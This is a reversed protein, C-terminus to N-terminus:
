PPGLTYAEGDAARWLPTLGLASDLAAPVYLFPREIATWWVLRGREGRAVREALRTLDGTPTGPSNYPHRRPSFSADLGSLAYVADPANSYLPGGPPAERLRAATASARWHPTAYGGVGEARYRLLDRGAHLALLAVAALSAASLLRAGARRAIPADQALRDLALAALLVLPLYTPALYRDNIRELAVASSALVTVALHLLVYAGLAVHSAGLSRAPLTRGPRLRLWLALAASVAAGALAVRWPGPVAHPLIWGSWVEAAFYTNAWWPYASPARDGLATGHSALNALLWLAVPALSVALYGAAARRRARPEGAGRLLLALAGAGAWAVGPYRTLAALAASGASLWPVGGGRQRDLARCSALVLALFLAESWVFSAARLLVPSFAVAVASAALWLRTALRASLWSLALAASAGAAVANLGRAAALAEGGVREALALLLPLLPAWAVLPTGDFAVLGRGGALREAASLYVASDPSVGPGHPGTALWVVLAAAAGAGLPVM